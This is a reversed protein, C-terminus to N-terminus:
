GAAPADLELADALGDHEPCGAQGAEGAEFSIRGCEACVRMSREYAERDILIAASFLSLVIDGLKDGPKPRPLWTASAGPQGAGGGRVVRGAYIAGTLFRDDQPVRVIGRLAVTARLRAMALLKALAGPSAGEGALPVEGVLAESVTRPAERMFGPGVLHEDFWAGLEAATWGEAVGEVFLLGGLLETRGHPSPLRFAPLTMLNSGGAVM